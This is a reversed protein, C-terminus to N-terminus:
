SVTAQQQKELWAEFKQILEKNGSARILDRTEAINNKDYDNEYYRRAAKISLSRAKELESESSSTFREYCEFYRKVQLPDSQCAGALFLMRDALERLTVAKAKHMNVRYEYSDNSTISKEIFQVMTDLREPTVPQAPSCAMTIIGAMDWFPHNNPATKDPITSEVPNASHLKSGLKTAKVSRVTEM